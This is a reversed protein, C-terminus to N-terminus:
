ASTYAITIINTTEDITATADELKPKTAFAINIPMTVAEAVGAGNLGPTLSGVWTFVSDEANEMFLCFGYLADLGNTDNLRQIEKFASKSYKATFAESPSDTLGQEYTRQTESMSTTDIREAEGILAPFDTIDVFKKYSTSTFANKNAEPVTTISSDVDSVAIGLFCRITTAM